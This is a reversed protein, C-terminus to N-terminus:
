RISRLRVACLEGVPNKRYQFRRHANKLEIAAVRLVGARARSGLATGRRRIDHRFVSIRGALARFGDALM